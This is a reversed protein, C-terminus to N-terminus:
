RQPTAAHNRAQQAPAGPTKALAARAAPPAEDVVTDAQSWAIGGTAIAAVAVLAPGAIVFWVMPFRWWPTDAAIPATNM